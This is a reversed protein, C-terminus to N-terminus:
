SVSAAKRTMAWDLHQRFAAIAKEYEEQSIRNEKHEVELRFLQEKLDNLILKSGSIPESMARSVVVSGKVDPRVSHSVRWKNSRGAVLITGMAVLVGLGGFLYWQFKGSRNSTGAPPPAQVRARSEQVPRDNRLTNASQASGENKDKSEALAGTGSLTFTLPRGATTNSAVQVIADRQRPDSMAQFAAGPIAAFHMQKPLIVVLHEVGYVPRPDITVAGKYPMHFLVQFQTEGPRLPFIFSYLNKEKQPLPFTRVPQGGASRAMCHDIRAGEPLYFQFNRESMQTQPPASDNKVAFLRVAQLSDGKAQFRTVDATVVIGKVKKSVDYVDLTVSTTDSPLLKYYPAGQHIIRLIRPQKSDGRKFTFNGRSDSQTRAVEQMGSSFDLLVVEDGAAPKQATASIVTGTLIQASVTTTLAGLVIGWLVIHLGMGRWQKLQKRNM